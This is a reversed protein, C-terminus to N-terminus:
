GVRQQEERERGSEEISLGWENWLSQFSNFVKVTGWDSQRVIHYRGGKKRVASDWLLIVGGTRLVQRAYSRNM